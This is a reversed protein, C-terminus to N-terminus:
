GGMYHKLVPNKPYIQISVSTRYKLHSLKRRGTKQKVSPSIRLLVLLRTVQLQQVLLPIISLNGVAVLHFVHLARELWIGKASVQCSWSLDRFEEMCKQRWHYSRKFLFICLWACSWLIGISFEALRERYDWKCWINNKRYCLNPFYHALTQKVKQMLLSSINWPVFSSSSVFM